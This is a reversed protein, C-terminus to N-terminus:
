DIFGLVESRRLQRRFVIRWDAAVGHVQFVNMALELGVVAVEQMSQERLTVDRSAVGAFRILNFDDV